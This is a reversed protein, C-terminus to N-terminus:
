HQSRFKTVPEADFPSPPRSEVPRLGSLAPGRSPALVEDFRVNLRRIAVGLQSAKAILRRLIEPKIDDTSLLIEDIRRSRVLRELNWHGGLVPYGNIRRGELSPRDDMFGAPSSHHAASQLIQQLALVGDSDAGYILVRHASANHRRFLHDLVRFSVRSGIILTFLLYFDLLITTLDIHLSPIRLAIMVVGSLVVAFAVTRTMDLADALGFQRITARYSGQSWFVLFQVLCVLAITLVLDREIGNVHDPGDHILHAAGYSAIIFMIDLFVQFVNRNLIEMDFLPLFVGNRLIAIERYRLQRVGLVLAVGVVLLILSAEANNAITITFAGIGLGCSVLYLLLVASRHSYGRALLQHHIHGRDPTFITRWGGRSGGEKNGPLFSRLVRRAMSLLTDMLPLGLAIIPVILAFATTSKTSSRLSLIALMFGLFLSGSDGLFVRAPNFNYRLFGFVAGALILAVIATGMDAQMIAIPFMTLLAIGSVGAALGDLGDILNIANTVGVIWAVTVLYDFAGLDIKGVAFPNTIDAVSFGAFYVISSLLIQVLLKEFPKIERIDDRVGLAVVLFVSAGFMVGNWGYLWAPLPLVRDFLLFAITSVVFAGSVAVGGLRPMPAAHAKRANPKDIAGVRYALRIVLPTFVLSLVLPLGFALVLHFVMSM